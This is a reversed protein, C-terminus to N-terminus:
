FFRFYQLTASEGIVECLGTCLASLEEWDIIIAVLYEEEEEEVVAAGTTRLATLQMGLDLLLRLRM